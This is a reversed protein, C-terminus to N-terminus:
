VGSPNATLVVISVRFSFGLRTVRLMPTRDAAYDIRAFASAPPGAAGGKLDVKLKISSGDRYYRTLIKDEM